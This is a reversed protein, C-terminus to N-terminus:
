LNYHGFSMLVAFLAGQHFVVESFESIALTGTQGKENQHIKGYMNICYAHIQQIKFPQFKTYM